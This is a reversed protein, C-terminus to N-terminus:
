TGTLAPLAGRSALRNAAVATG